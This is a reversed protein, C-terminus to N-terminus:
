RLRVAVVRGLEEEALPLATTRSSDAVDVLVVQAAAEPRGVTIGLAAFGDRVGILGAGAIPGTELLPPGATGDSGYRRLWTREPYIPSDAALVYLGGDGGWASGLPAQRGSTSRSPPM